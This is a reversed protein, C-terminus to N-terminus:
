ARRELCTPIKATHEPTHKTLAGAKLWSTAEITLLREDITQSSTRSNTSAANTPQHNSESEASGPTMGTALDLGSGAVRRSGGVWGL